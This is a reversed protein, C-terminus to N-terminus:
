CGLPLIFGRYARFTGMTKAVRAVERARARYADGHTNGLRDEAIGRALMEAGAEPWVALGLPQHDRSQRAIPNRQDGDADHLLDSRTM